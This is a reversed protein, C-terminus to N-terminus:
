PRCLYFLGLSLPFFFTSDNLEHIKKQLTYKVAFTKVIEVSIYLSIPVINQYLILTVRNIHM